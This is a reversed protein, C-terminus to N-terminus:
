HTRDVGSASPTLTVKCAARRDPRDGFLAGTSHPASHIDDRICSAEEARRLYTSRPHWPVLLNGWCRVNTAGLAIYMKDRPGCTPAWYRQAHGRWSYFPLCAVNCCLNVWVRLSGCCDLMCHLLTNREPPGFWELGERTRTNTWGDRMVPLVSLGRRMKPNLAPASRWGALSKRESLLTCPIISLVM